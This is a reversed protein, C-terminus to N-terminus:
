PSQKYAHTHTNNQQQRFSKDFSGMSISGQWPVTFPFLLVMAGTVTFLPKLFETHHRDTQRPDLLLSWCLCCACCTSEGPMMSVMTEGEAWRTAHMQM